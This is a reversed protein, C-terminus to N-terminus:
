ATCEDFTRFTDDNYRDKIFKDLDGFITKETLIFFGISELLANEYQAILRPFYTDILARPKIEFVYKKNNTLTVVFDDCFTHKKGTEFNEFVIRKPEVVYSSVLPNYDLHEAFILEWSSRYWFDGGDVKDSFHRGCKHNRGGVPKGNTKQGLSIKLGVKNKYEEDKTEWFKKMRISKIEPSNGGHCSKLAKESREEQSFNDWWETKKDSITKKIHQSIIESNPFQKKYESNNLGHKNRIHQSLDQKKEGCIQCTCCLHLEKEKLVRKREEIIPRSNKQIEEKTYKHIQRLHASISKLSKFLRDCEPCKIEETSNM